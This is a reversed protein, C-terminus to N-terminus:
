ISLLLALGAGGLALGLGGVVQPAREALWRRLGLGALAGGLHLVACTLMFGAAYAAFGSSGPAEAGHALGHLAAAMAVLGLGTAGGNGPKRRVAALLLWGFMVVSAALAPELLGAAVGGAGALAGLALALLFTAPGAWARRAPLAFVSWLGVAGMALLHDLGFPHALGTFFSETGHGTHAAASGAFGALLVTAIAGSLHVSKM